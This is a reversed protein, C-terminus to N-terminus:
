FRLYVYKRSGYPIKPQIQGSSLANNIYKTINFSFPQDPHLGNDLVNIACIKDGCLCQHKTENSLKYYNQPDKPDGGIFAYWSREM